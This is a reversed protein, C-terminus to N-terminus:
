QIIITRGRSGGGGTSGLFFANPNSVNNYEVKLWDASREINSIRCEDMYAM